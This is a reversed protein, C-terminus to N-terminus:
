YLRAHLVLDHVVPVMKSGTAALEQRELDRVSCTQHILPAAVAATSAARPELEQAV